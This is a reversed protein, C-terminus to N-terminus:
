NNKEIDNLKAHQFDLPSPFFHALKKEKLLRRMGQEYHEKLEDGLPTNTFGLYLKKEPIVITKNLSADPNAYNLNYSLVLAADVRNNFILKDVDIISDVGYYFTDEPIFHEFGYNRRGAVTLKSLDVASEIHNKQKDYLAYVPYDIDIHINPLLLKGKDKAFIGIIIDANSSSVLNTARTWTTTQREIQYKDAFIANVISWYTGSGDANTAGVWEESVIRITSEKVAANCNFILFITFIILTKLEFM